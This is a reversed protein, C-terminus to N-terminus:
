FFLNVQSSCGLELITPSPPPKYIMLPIIRYLLLWEFNWEKFKAKKTLFFAFFGSIKKSIVCSDFLCVSVSKVMGLEHFLEVCSLGFNHCVYKKARCYNKDHIWGLNTSPLVMFFNLFAVRCKVVYKSIVTGHAGYVKNIQSQVYILKIRVSKESGYLKYSM